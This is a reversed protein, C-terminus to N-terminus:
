LPVTYQPQLLGWGWRGTVYANLAAPHYQASPGSESGEGVDGVEPQRGAGPLSSPQVGPRARIFVEKYIECIIGQGYESRWDGEM